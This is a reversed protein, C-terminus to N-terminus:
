SLNIDLQLFSIEHSIPILFPNCFPTMLTLPSITGSLSFPRALRHNGVPPPAAAPARRGVVSAQAGRRQHRRLGGGGGEEEEAEGRAGDITPGRRKAEIARWGLKADADVGAPSRNSRTQFQSEASPQLGAVNLNDPSSIRTL